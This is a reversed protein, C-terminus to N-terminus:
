VPWCHCGDEEGNAGEEGNECDGARYRPSDYRRGMGLGLSDFIFYNFGQLSDSFPIGASPLGQLLHRM